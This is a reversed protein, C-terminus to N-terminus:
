TGTWQRSTDYQIIIIVDVVIITIIVIMGFSVTSVYCDMTLIPFHSFINLNSFGDEKIHLRRKSLKWGIKPSLISLISLHYILNLCHKTELDVSSWNSMLSFGVAVYIKNYLPTAFGSIAQGAAVCAFIAGM